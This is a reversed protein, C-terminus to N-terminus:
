LHSHIGEYVQTNTDQVRVISHNSSFAASSLKPNSIFLRCRPNKLNYVGPGPQTSYLISLLNQPQLLNKKCTLMTRESDKQM